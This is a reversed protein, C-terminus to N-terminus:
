QVNRNAAKGSLRTRERTMEADQATAANCWAFSLLSIATLCVQLSRRM